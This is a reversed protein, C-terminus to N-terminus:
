LISMCAGLSLIVTRPKVLCYSFGGEPPKMGKIWSLVCDASCVFPGKPDLLNWDRQEVKQLRNCQTCKRQPM